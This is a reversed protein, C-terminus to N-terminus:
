SLAKERHAMSPFTEPKKEQGGREERRRKEGREKKGEREKESGVCEEAHVDPASSM